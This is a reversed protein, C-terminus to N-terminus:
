QMKVLHYCASFVLCNISPHPYQNHQQLHKRIGDYVDFVEEYRKHNHLLTLMVKYADMQEFLSKTQDDTYFQLIFNGICESNATSLVFFRVFIKKKRFEIVEIAVDPIDLMHFMKMISTGFCFESQRQSTDDNNASSNDTTNIAASPYQVLISKLTNLDDPKKDMLLILQKLHDRQDHLSSNAFNEILNTKHANVDNRKKFRDFIQQRMRKMGDIGLEQEAYFSRIPLIEFSPHMCKVTIVINRQNLARIQFM